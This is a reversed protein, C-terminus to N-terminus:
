HLKEGPCPEVIRNLVPFNGLSLLAAVATRLIAMYAEHELVKMTPRDSKPRAQAVRGYAAAAMMLHENISKLWEDYDSTKEGRGLELEAARFAATVAESPTIAM